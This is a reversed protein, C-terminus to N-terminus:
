IGLERKASVLEKKAQKEAEMAHLIIYADGAAKYLALAQESGMLFLDVEGIRLAVFDSVAEANIQTEDNVHVNVTVLTSM